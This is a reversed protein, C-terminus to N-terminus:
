DNRYSREPAGLDFLTTEVPRAEGWYVSPEADDRSVTENLIRIKSDPDLNIESVRSRFAPGFMWHLNNSGYRKGLNQAFLNVIRARKSQRIAPEARSNPPNVM